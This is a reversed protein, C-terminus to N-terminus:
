WPRRGRGRGRGPRGRGGPEGLFQASAAGSAVAQRPRSRSGSRRMSWLRVAAQLRVQDARFSRGSCASSSRVRRVSEAGMEVGEPRRGHGSPRDVWVAEWDTKMYRRVRRATRSRPKQNIGGQVCRILARPLDGPDLHLRPDLADAVLKVLGFPPHAPVLAVGEAPAALSYQEGCCQLKMRNPLAKSPTMSKSRAM